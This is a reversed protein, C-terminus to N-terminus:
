SHQKVYVVGDKGVYSKQNLSLVKDKQTNPQHIAVESKIGKPVWGKGNVEEDAAQILLHMKERLDDYLWIWERFQDLQIYPPKSSSEEGTHKRIIGKAHEHIGSLEQNTKAVKVLLEKVKTLYQERLGKLEELESQFLSYGDLALNSLESYVSGTGIGGLDIPPNNQGIEDLLMRQKEKAIDVKVRAEMIAGTLDNGSSVSQKLLNAYAEEAATVEAAVKARKNDNEKCKKEYAEVIKTLREYAEIRM